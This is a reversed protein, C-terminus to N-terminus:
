RIGSERHRDPSPQACSDREALEVEFSRLRIENADSKRDIINVFEEFLQEYQPRDHLVLGTLRPLMAEPRLSTSGSFVSIDDPVCIGQNLLRAVLARAYDDDIAFVATPMPRMELIGDITSYRRNVAEAAFSHLQM